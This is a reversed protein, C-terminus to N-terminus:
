VKRVKQHHTIHCGKVEENEDDGQLERWSGWGDGDVCVVQWLFKAPHRPPRKNEDPGLVAVGLFAASPTARFLGLQPQSPVACRAISLFFSQLM